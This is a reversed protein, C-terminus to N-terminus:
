SFVIRVDCNLAAELATHLRSEPVRRRDAAALTFIAVEEGNEEVRDIRAHVGFAEVVGLADADTGRSLFTVAGVEPPGGFADTCAEVVRRRADDPGVSDVVLDLERDGGHRHVAIGPRPLRAVRAAIDATSLGGSPDPDLRVIAQRVPVSPRTM